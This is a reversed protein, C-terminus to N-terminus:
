VGAGTDAAVGTVATGLGAGTVVAGVGSTWNGEWPVSTGGDIFVSSKKEIDIYRGTVHGCSAGGSTTSDRESSGTQDGTNSDVAVVM